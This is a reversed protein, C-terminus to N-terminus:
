ISTNKKVGSTQFVHSPTYALSIPLHKKAKVEYILEQLSAPYIHTLFFLSPDQPSVGRITSSQKFKTQMSDDTPMHPASNFNPDDTVKPFQPYHIDCALILSSFQNAWKNMEIKLSAEDHKDSIACGGFVIIPEPLESSHNISEEWNTILSFDEDNGELLLISRDRFEGQSSMLDNIIAIKGRYHSLYALSVQMSFICPAYKIGRTSSRLNKPHVFKGWDLVPLGSIRQTDPLEEAKKFYEFAALNSFLKQLDKTINESFKTGVNAIIKIKKPNTRRGMQPSIESVYALIYLGTLLLIQEPIIKLDFNQYNPNQNFIPDLNNKCLKLESTTIGHILNQVILSIGHCCNSTTHADFVTYIGNLVSDISKLCCEMFFLKSESSVLRQEWFECINAGALIRKLSEFSLSSQKLATDEATQSM